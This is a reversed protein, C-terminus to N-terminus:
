QEFIPKLDYLECRNNKDIGINLRVVYIISGIKVSANYYAFKVYGDSRVKTLDGLGMFESYKILDVLYPTLLIKILSNSHTIKDAGKSGLYIIRGDHAIHEGRLNKMIYKYALKKREKPSAIDFQKQLDTDLNVEIVKFKFNTNDFENM